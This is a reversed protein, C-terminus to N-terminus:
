RHPQWTMWSACSTKPLESKRSPLFDDLPQKLAYDARNRQGRLVNLQNGAEVILSNKANALRLWVYAHALASEPVVFGASELLERGVHFASYYARSVASRWEAENTGVAWESAVVLFERPDM